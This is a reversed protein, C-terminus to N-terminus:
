KERAPINFGASKIKEDFSASMHICFVNKRYEPSILGCLDELGMHADTSKGEYSTDAYAVQILGENIENVIEEPLINCDGSYYTKGSGDDFLYGFCSLLPDHQEKTAKISINGIRANMGTVFSCFSEGIGLIRVLTIMEDLIPFYVSVPKGQKKIFPLLSGLSGIHDTHFHTIIIFYESAELFDENELLRLFVDSGCDILVFTNEIRFYAATNGYKVNLGSGTGLFHMKVM